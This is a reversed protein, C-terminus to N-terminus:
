VVVVGVSFNIVLVTIVIVVVYIVVGVVTVAIHHQYPSVALLPQAGTHQESRRLCAGERGGLSGGVWAKIPTINPNLSSIPIICADSDRWKHVDTHLVKALALRGGEGRRM